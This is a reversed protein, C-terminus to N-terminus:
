IFGSCGDGSPQVYYNLDREEGDTTHRFMYLDFSYGDTYGAHTAVPIVQM